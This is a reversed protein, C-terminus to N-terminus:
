GLMFLLLIVFLSRLDELLLDLDLLMWSSLFLRRLNSSVSNEIIILPPTIVLADSSFRGECISMRTSKPFDSETARQFLIAETISELGEKGWRLIFANKDKVRNKFNDQLSVQQWLFQCHISEFKNQFSPFDEYKCMKVRRGCARSITFYATILYSAAVPYKTTKVIYIVWSVYSFHGM